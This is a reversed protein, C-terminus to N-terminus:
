YIDKSIEFQFTAKVNNKFILGVHFIMNVLTNYFYIQNLLVPSYLSHSVIIEIRYSIEIYKKIICCSHNLIYLKRRSIIFMDVDQVAKQHAAFDNNLLLYMIRLLSHLRKFAFTFHHHNM